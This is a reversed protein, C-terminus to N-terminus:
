MKYNKIENKPTKAKNKIIELATMGLDVIVAYPFYDTECGAVVVEAPQLAPLCGASRCNHRQEKIVWFFFTFSTWVAIPHLLVQYWPRM